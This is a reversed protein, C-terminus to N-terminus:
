TDSVHLQSRPGATDSTVTRALLEGVSTLQRSCQCLSSFPRRGSRCARVCVSLCVCVCVYVCARARARACVCIETSVTM